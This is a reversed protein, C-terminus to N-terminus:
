NLSYLAPSNTGRPVFSCTERLLFISEECSQRLRGPSREALLRTCSMSITQFPDARRPMPTPPPNPYCRRSHPICKQHLRVCGFPHLHDADPALKAVGVQGHARSLAIWATPAHVLLHHMLTYALFQPEAIHQPDIDARRRQRCLLRPDLKHLSIRFIAALSQCRQLSFVLRPPFAFRLEKVHLPRPGPDHHPTHRM